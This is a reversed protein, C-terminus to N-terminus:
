YSRGQAKVFKKIDNIDMHHPIREEKAIEPYKDLFYSLKAEFELKPLYAWPYLERKFIEHREDRDM